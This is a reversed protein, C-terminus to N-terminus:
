YWENIKWLVRFGNKCTTLYFAESWVFLYMLILFRVFNIAIVRRSECITNCLNLVRYNKENTENKQTTWFFPLIFQEHISFSLSYIYIRSLKRKFEHFLKIFAWRGLAHSHETIIKLVYWLQVNKVFLYMNRGNQVTKAIKVHKLSKFKESM